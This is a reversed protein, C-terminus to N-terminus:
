VNLIVQLKRLPSFVGGKLISGCLNSGARLVRAYFLFRDRFRL